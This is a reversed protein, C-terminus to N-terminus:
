TSPIQCNRPRIPSDASSEASIPRCRSASGRRHRRYELVERHLLREAQPVEGLQRTTLRELLGLILADDLDDLAAVIEDDVGSMREVGFLDPRGEAVDSGPPQAVCSTACSCDLGM